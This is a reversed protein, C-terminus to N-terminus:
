FSHLTPLLSLLASERWKMKVELSIKGHLSEQEKHKGQKEALSIAFQLMNKAIGKRRASKAVCLNAIYAFKTSPKKNVFGFLPAKTREQEFFYSWNEPPSFSHNKWTRVTDSNLLVGPFFQGHSLYGYSLDLTGVVSKLVNCKMTRDEKNAQRLSYNLWFELVAGIAFGM